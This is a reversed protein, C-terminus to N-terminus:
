KDRGIERAQNVTEIEIGFTRIYACNDILVVPIRFVNVITNQFRLTLRIIYMALFLHYSQSM